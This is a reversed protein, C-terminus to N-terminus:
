EGAKRGDQWMAGTRLASERCVYIEGWSQGGGVYVCEDLRSIWGEGGAVDWKEYCTWCNRADAASGYAYRKSRM